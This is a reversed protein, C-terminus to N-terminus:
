DVKWWKNPFKEKLIGEGDFCTINLNKLDSDVMIRCLDDFTVKPQWGLRAKAKSFDGILSEM